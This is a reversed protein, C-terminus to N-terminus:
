DLETNTSSCLVPDFDGLWGFSATFGDFNHTEVTIETPVPAGLLGRGLLTLAPTDTLKAVVELRTWEHWFDGGSPLKALLQAPPADRFEVDIARRPEAPGPWCWRTDDATYSHVHACGDATCADKRESRILDSPAAM